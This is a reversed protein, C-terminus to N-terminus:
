RKSALTKKMGHQSQETEREIRQKVPSDTPIASSIKKRNQTKERPGAKTFSCLEVLNPKFRTDGSSTPSELPLSVPCSNGHLQPIEPASRQTGHSLVENKTPPSHQEPVLTPDLNPRDTVTAPVFTIEPFAERNFLFFGSTQFGDQINEMSAVLPFATAIIKQYSM